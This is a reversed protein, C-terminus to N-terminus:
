AVWAAGKISTEFPFYWYSAGLGELFPLNFPFPFGMLCFFTFNVGLSSLMSHVSSIRFPKSCNFNGITLLQTKYIGKGSPQHAVSVSALSKAIM